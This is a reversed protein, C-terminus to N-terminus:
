EKRVGALLEEFYRVPVTPEVGLRLLLFPNTQAANMGREATVASRFGCDQVLKLTPDNLDSRRGNPYCFHIAPAKLEEELRNKSGLIEDKLLEPDEIQSLIPHTKTHPGFEVGERALTRVENWTLPAFEEPPSAPLEVELDNAIQAFTKIRQSNELGKLLSSIKERVVRRENDSKFSLTFSARAPIDIALSNRKTQRLSYKLKDFWLWLKNDLFDSVLFVTTPIEFKRFIVQAELFDRYGDDITIAVANQPLPEGGRLYETIAKLSVPNYHRRIIECQQNLGETKELFRHYMLIRIGKSNLLRFGHVGGLNHLITKAITKPAPILKM